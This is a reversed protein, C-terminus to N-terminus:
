AEGASSRHEGTEIADARGVIAASVIAINMRAAVTRLIGPAAARHIRTEHACCHTLIARPGNIAVSSFEQGRGRKM